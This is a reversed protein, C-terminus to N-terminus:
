SPLSDASLTVWANEDCVVWLRDGVLMMEVKECCVVFAHGGCEREHGDRDKDRCQDGM